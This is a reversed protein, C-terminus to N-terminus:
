QRAADWKRIAAPNFLSDDYYQDLNKRVANWKKSGEEIAQLNISEGKANLDQSIDTLTNQLKNEYPFRDHLRGIDQRLAAAMFDLTDQEYGGILIASFSATIVDTKYQLLAQQSLTPNDCHTDDLIRLYSLLAQKIDQSPETGTFEKTILRTVFRDLDDKVPDYDVSQLEDSLSPIPVPNFAEDGLEDSFHFSTVDATGPASSLGTVFFHTNTQGQGHCAQCTLGRRAAQGGLLYPSRFALRGFAIRQAQKATEHRPLCENPEESLLAVIDTQTSSWLVIDPVPVKGSSINNSCSTAGLGIIILGASLLLGRNFKDSMIAGRLHM